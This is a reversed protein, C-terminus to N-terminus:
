GEVLFRYKRYEFVAGDRRIEELVVGEGLQEKEVVRQGAILVFRDEPREAYVLVTIRLEPLSDRVGQPLEWYSIPRSAGPEEAAAAPQSGGAREPERADAVRADSAPAPAPVSDGAEPAPAEYDRVSRSVESPQSDSQAVEDPPMASENELKDTDPAFSEVPTRPAQRVLQPRRAVVPEAPSGAPTGTSAGEPAASSEPVASEAAAAPSADAPLEAALAPEAPELGPPERLQQWGVWAMAVTALAMLGLAIWPRGAGGDAVTEEGPSHITPTKGLQRQQESKKLADLLISM